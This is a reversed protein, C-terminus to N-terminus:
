RKGKTLARGLSLAALFGVLTAILVIDFTSASGSLVGLLTILGIISFFLLDAAVARDADKPGFVIRYAAAVVAVAILGIAIYVAMM